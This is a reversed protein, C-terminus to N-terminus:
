SPTRPSASSRRTGFSLLGSYGILLDLSMAFIAFILIEAALGTVYNGTLPVLALAVILAIWVLMRHTPERKELV